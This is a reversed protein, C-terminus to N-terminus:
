NQGDVDKMGVVVGHTVAVSLVPVYALHQDEGADTWCAGRKHSVRIM